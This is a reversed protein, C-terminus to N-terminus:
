FTGLGGRSIALRERLTDTGVRFMTLRRELNALCGQSRALRVEIMM